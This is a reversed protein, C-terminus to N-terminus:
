RRPPPLEGEFCACGARAPQARAAARRARRYRARDRRQPHRACAVDDDDFLDPAVRRALWPWRVDRGRAAMTASVGGAGTQAAGRERRLRRHLSDGSRRAAPRRRAAGPRGAARRAAAEGRGGHRQRPPRRRERGALAELYTERALGADLPELRQAADLLLPVADGGRRLDLAIQGRLRQLRARQRARRAAREAARRCCRWLRRPRVPWSSPRRPPSRAGPVARLTSRSSAARELFAAAAALGGRARARDPQASSSPPSTRTRRRADRPGPALRPSGPRGRCRHGDGARPAREGTRPRRPATSRRACSLIASPSGRASSSCGRGRPRRLADASRAWARGGVRWLLAPEGTPEAAALLLLRQRRRRASAAVRQRFSAEIRSQCRCRPETPRLRGGSSARRCSARCSSCRSRIGTRRLSSGSGCASTWRRASSRRSCSM